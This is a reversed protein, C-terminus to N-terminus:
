ADEPTRVRKKEGAFSALDSLIARKIKNRNDVSINYRKALV